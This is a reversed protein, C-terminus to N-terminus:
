FSISGSKMFKEMIQAPVGDKHVMISITNLNFYAESVLLFGKFGLNDGWSNKVLFYPQKYQDQALGVIHMLHDDTLSYNDFEKQKLEATIDLQEHPKSFLPTMNQAASLASESPVIALGQRSSFGNESVDCDWALTYGQSVAYSTLDFLERMTVNLYEGNAFNDPIELVFKSYYPKHSFSTFSLYDEPNIGIKDKAFSTSTYSKGQYDFTQPVEGLYYNLISDFGVQWESPISGSTVLGKLYADLDNQLKDHNHIEEGLPRGNYVAEPVAGYKKYINMVDHGLSGPSFNTKGHYRLYKQAKLPYTMRVMFMESLDLPSLNKRLAESELMSLTSYSWCTGTNGQSKAPTCAHNYLVEFEFAGKVLTDGFTVPISNSSLPPAEQGILYTLHFCTFVSILIVIPYKM